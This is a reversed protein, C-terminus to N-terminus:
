RSPRLVRSPRTRLPDGYEFRYIAAGALLM